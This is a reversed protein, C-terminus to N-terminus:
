NRGQIVAGMAALPAAAKNCTEIYEREPDSDAVIGAGAQVSGGSRNMVATRIAIAVDFNDYWDVYGVCGAYVGRRDPEVADILEMARIKPAGTVTGAPFTAGLVDFADVGPRSRGSVTSVMHMVHSYRDIARFQDTTVTGPRCVRGLDNRGLDVLMVHEANEKPSALLNREHRQDAGSDAGRPRTGAIPRTKIQEGSKQVLTEPSSGAIAFDGFRLFYMYPSPNSRRLRRYVDFPHIAGGVSFRQSLVGQFIDGRGIHKKFTRVGERFAQPSMNARAQRRTVPTIEPLPASREVRSVLRALTRQAQDYRAKLSSTQATDERVTVVARAAQRAHDFLVVQDYLGLMAWPHGLVDRAQSPLNEFLHACDYGFYGIWGGLLGSVDNPASKPQPHLRERLLDVFGDPSFSRRHGSTVHVGQDSHLVVTEIPDVGIISYRGVNEGAEVSELLFSTKAKDGNLRLFVAAPTLLDAPVEVSLHALGTERWERKFAAFDM